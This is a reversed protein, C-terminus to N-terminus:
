YRGKIDGLYTRGPSPSNILRQAVDPPVGVSTYTRGDRTEVNLTFTDPDYDGGVLWSSALTFPEAPM